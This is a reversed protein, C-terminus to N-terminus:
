EGGIMQQFWHEPDAPDDKGIYFALNRIADARELGSKIKDEIFDVMQTRTMNVESFDHLM